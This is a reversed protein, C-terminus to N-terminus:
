KFGDLKLYGIPMANDVDFFIVWDMNRRSVLPLWRAKSADGEIAKNITRVADPHLKVLEEIPASKEMVMKSNSAYELWQSPRLSAEQGNLAAIFRGWKETSDKAPALVVMKPENLRWPQAWDPIQSTEAEDLDAYSVVRIRDVEFVLAIPRAQSAVHLGYCLAIIQIGAIIGMDRALERFPKAIDFVLFTLIPGCVLDVLFIMLLLQLGGMVQIWPSKFWIKTILLVVVGVVIVSFFLHM